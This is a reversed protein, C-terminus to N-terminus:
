GVGNAIGEIGGEIFLAAGDPLEDEKLKQESGDLM